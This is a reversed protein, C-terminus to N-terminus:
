RSSRMQPSAALWFAIGSLAGATATVGLQKWKTSKEDLLSSGLTKKTMAFTCYWLGVGPIDRLLMRILGRWLGLVGDAKLTKSIVDIPGRYRFM